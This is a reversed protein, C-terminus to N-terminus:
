RTTILQASMPRAPFHERVKGKSGADTIEVALVLILGM